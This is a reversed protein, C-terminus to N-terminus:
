RLTRFTNCSEPKNNIARNIDSNMACCDVTNSTDTSLEETFSEKQQVYNQSSAM